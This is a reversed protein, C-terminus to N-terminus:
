KLWSNLDYSKWQMALHPIHEEICSNLIGHNPTHTEMHKPFSLVHKELDSILERLDAYKWQQVTKTRQM